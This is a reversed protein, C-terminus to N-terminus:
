INEKYKNLMKKAKKQLFSRFFIGILSLSIGTMTPITAKSIGGAMMKPESNGFIAIVDFVEIMGNVTGLLGLLPTAIIIVDLIYLKAFIKDKRSIEDIRKLYPNSIKQAATDAEFFYFWIRELVVSLMITSVLFIFVLM